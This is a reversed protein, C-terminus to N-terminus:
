VDAPPGRRMGLGWRPVRAKYREYDDGFRRQLLPEERFVVYAHAILWFGFSYLVLVPSGFLLAEGLMIVVYALYMPNRLRQYSLSRVFHRPPDLPVHTGDGERIFASVLRAVWLNAGIILVAGPAALLPGAVQWPNDRTLFLLAAPGLVFFMAAFYLSALTAKLRLWFRRRHSDGHGDAM